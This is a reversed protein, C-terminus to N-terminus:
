PYTPAAARGISGYFPLLTLSRAVYFITLAAWLGHNGFPPVLVWWSALFIVLAQAMANRMEVSRTAGIFIGDLLFCWVALVPIAAAWPLYHRAAERVDPSVTLIDILAPGAGVLLLTLAVATLGAWLCSLAVIRRLNTRNRAGVAEGVLAETAACFADLLFASFAIFQGLVANAALTVDGSRAGQATFFAFAFILCFTRLMIDRNLAIMRAIEHADLLRARTWHALDVNRWAIYLGLLAAACEAIVTGAAVGKVGWGLALVFILNLAINLLNMFLQLGLATKAKQRGIFWGLLAFNILTFPASWIRVNFFEHGYTQVASSGRLLGFAVVAIPWQLAILGCGIVLAVLLARGLHASIAEADRAGLAQATLGTTGMRLFGFGWFAFNFITAGLAVGGLAAPDPIRGIIITDSLGLLPVSINSLIIPGALRLVRAHTIPSASTM